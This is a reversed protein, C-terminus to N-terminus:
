MCLSAAELLWCLVYDEGILDEIAVLSFLLLCPVLVGMVRLVYSAFLVLLAITSIARLVSGNSLPPLVVVFSRSEVTGCVYTSTCYLGVCM